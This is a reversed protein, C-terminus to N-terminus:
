KKKTPTCTIELSFYTNSAQVTNKHNNWNRSNKDGPLTCPYFAPIGKRYQSFHNQVRTYFNCGPMYFYITTKAEFSFESRFSISQLQPEQTSRTGILWHFNLFQNHSKCNGLNGIEPIENSRTRNTMNKMDCLSSLNLM